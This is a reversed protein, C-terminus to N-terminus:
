YNQISILAQKLRKLVRDDPAKEKFNAHRKKKKKTLSKESNAKKFFMCHSYFTGEKVRGAIESLM